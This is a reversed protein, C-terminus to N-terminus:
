LWESTPTAAVTILFYVVARVLSDRADDDLTASKNYIQASFLSQIIFNSGVGPNLLVGAVSDEGGLHALM